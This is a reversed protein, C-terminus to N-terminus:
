AAVVKSRIDKCLSALDVRQALDTVERVSSKFAGVREMTALILRREAEPIRVHGLFINSLRAQSFGRGLAAALEVQSVRLEQRRKELDDNCM